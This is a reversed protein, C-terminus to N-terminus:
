KKQVRYLVWPHQLYWVAAREKTKRMKRTRSFSILCSNEFDIFTRESSEISQHQIQIRASGYEMQGRVSIWWFIIKGQPLLISRWGFCLTPVFDCRQENILKENNELIVFINKLSWVDRTQPPKVSFHSWWMFIVRVPKPISPIDCGGSKFALSPTMILRARKITQERLASPYGSRAPGLWAAPTSSWCWRPWAPLRPATCRSERWWAQWFLWPRHWQGPYSNM